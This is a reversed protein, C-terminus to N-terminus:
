GASSEGVASCSANGTCQTCSYWIHLHQEVLFFLLLSHFVVSLVISLVIGNVKGIAERIEVNAGDLTALLLGGNMAFKM